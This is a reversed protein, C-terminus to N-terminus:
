EDAHLAIRRLADVPGGQAQKYLQGAVSTLDAFMSNGVASAVEYDSLADLGVYVIAKEQIVSLWDFVPRRDATDARDPSLLGATKGTTLKELLPLLSAVLKDFYSKEYSLTSALAHAIPDYLQKRNAYEVLAVARSGRTQLGRNLTKKDIQLSQVENRWDA